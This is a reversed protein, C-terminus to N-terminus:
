FDVEPYYERLLVRSLKEYQEEVIAYDYAFKYRYIGSINAYDAVFINGDEYVTLDTPLKNNEHLLM